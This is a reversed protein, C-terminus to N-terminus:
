GGIRSKSDLDNNIYYSLDIYKCTRADQYFLLRADPVVLPISIRYLDGNSEFEAIETIDDPPEIQIPFEFKQGQYQIFINPYSVLFFLIEKMLDDRDIDTGAWIDLQYRLIIQMSYINRVLYEEDHRIGFNAISLQTKANHPIFEHSTRWISLAPLKVNDNKDKLLYREYFKDTPAYVTNPFVKKLKNEMAKDYLYIM